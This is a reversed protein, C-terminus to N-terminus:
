IEAINLMLLAHEAAAKADDIYRFTGEVPIGHVKVSYVDRNKSRQKHTGNTYIEAVLVDDLLGQRVKAHTKGTWTITM